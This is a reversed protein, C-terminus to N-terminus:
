RGREKKPKPIQYFIDEREAHKTVPRIAYCEGVWQKGNQTWIIKDDIGHRMLVDRQIDKSMGAFASKRYEGNQIEVYRKLGWIKLEDFEAVGKFKEIEFRGINRIDGKDGNVFWDGIADRFERESCDAIISDTDCMLVQHGARLLRLGHKVLRERANMMATFGIMFCRDSVADPDNERKIVTKVNGPWEVISGTAFKQITKGHVSANLDSKHMKKILGDTVSKLVYCEEVFAGFRGVDKKAFWVESIRENKIRYCQKIANQYYSYTFLRGRVMGERMKTNHQGELPCGCLSMALRDCSEGSIIPLTGEIYEFDFSVVVWCLLKPNNLVQEFQGREAEHIAGKFLEGYKYEYPYSSSYDGHTFVGHYHGPRGDVYGGTISREAIVQKRHDLPPYQQKFDRLAFFMTKADLDQARRGGRFTYAIGNKYGMSAGTLALDRAHDHLWECFLAQIFADVRSYRLFQKYEESDEGLSYWTEYVATEEKGDVGARDMIARYEPDKRLAKIVESLKDHCMQWDDVFRMKFGRADRLELEYVMMPTQVIDWEMKKLKKGSRFTYGHRILWNVIPRYEWDLNFVHVECDELNDWAGFFQSYPDDSVWTRVEDLRRAGRMCIQIEVNRLVGDDCIGSETDFAFVSPLAM